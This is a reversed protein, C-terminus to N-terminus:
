SPRAPSCSRGGPPTWRRSSRASSTASSALLERPLAHRHVARLRDGRRPRDDAGAAPAVNSMSTVHTALGILAVGTILGLGATILPMGAAILSGFTILLIILAAIVGVETAPGVSFGEAQEIVQGGAAVKLGPVHVANVANLVPKGTDNPVLNARKSYNITAFATTRDHSVQAAGRLRYPSVVSVVHPAIPSRPWCRRSRATVAPSDITGNSYHFVITDVDGSQIKFERSLLDSARQSETGPLTFNSAYNRGAAEAIVSTLIAIAIWGIVVTRRHSICWRALGLM